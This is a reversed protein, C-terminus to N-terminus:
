DPWARWSPLGSRSTVWTGVPRREPTSGMADSHKAENRLRKFEKRLEAERATSINPIGPIALALAYSFATTFDESMRNPDTVRYVYRIWVENASCLLAGQGEHEEERYFVNGAGADNDYVGVTRIWDAPLPYAFDFAFAPTVSSQALKVRKTAFNWYHSRLLKDRVSVFVDNVKTANTTGDSLSTIRGAKLLYLAENAIDTDSSM